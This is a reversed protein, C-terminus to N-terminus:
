AACDKRKRRLALLAGGILVLLGSTPEPVSMAPSWHVDGQVSLESSRIHGGAVLDRLTESTSAMVVWDWTGDEHILAHGLELAFTISTDDWSAGMVVSSIDAYAPGAKWIPPVTYTPVMLGPQDCVEQSEGLNLYVVNGDKDTASVRVLNPTLGEAEGRGPLDAAHYQTGDFDTIIPDDFCWLLVNDSAPLYGAGFLAVILTLKKFM